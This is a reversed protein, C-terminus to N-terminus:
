SIRGQPHKKDKAYARKQRQSDALRPLSGKLHIVVGYPLRFNVCITGNESGTAKLKGTAKL